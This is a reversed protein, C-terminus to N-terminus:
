VRTPQSALAVGGLRAPLAWPEAGDNVHGQLEAATLLCFVAPSGAMMAVGLPASLWAEPHRPGPWDARRLV